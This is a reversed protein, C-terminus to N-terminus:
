LCRFEALYTWGSEQVVSVGLGLREGSARLWDVHTSHIPGVGGEHRAKDHMEWRRIGEANWAAFHLVAVGRPRLVRRISALFQHVLDIKFHVFVDISFVLDISGDAVGELRAREDHHLRLKARQRAFRPEIAEHLLRASYDV